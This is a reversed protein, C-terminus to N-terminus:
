QYLLVRLLDAIYHIRDALQELLVISDRLRLLLRINLQDDSTSYLLDLFERYNADIENELEHITVTNEYVKNPSDRLNKITQKLIVAMKIIQNILKHYRNKIEKFKKDSLDIKIKNLLDVFELPYNIVNDMKLILDIFDGLGQTGAEAFNQILKIKYEDAEEESMQMKSKKKQLNEKNKEYGEAWASYYVGMDSIVSYMIRSHEVLLSIIEEKIKRNSSM